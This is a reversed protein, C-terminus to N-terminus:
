LSPRRLQLSSARHRPFFNFKMYPMSSRVGMWRRLVYHAWVWVWVWVWVRVRVRVRVEVWVWMEVEVWVWMEVEVWV